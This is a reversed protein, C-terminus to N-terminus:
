VADPITLDAAIQSALEVRQVGEVQIEIGNQRWRLRGQWIELPGDAASGLSANPALEFDGKRITEM